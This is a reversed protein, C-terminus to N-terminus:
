VGSCHCVRESLQYHGAATVKLTREIVGIIGGPPTKELWGILSHVSGFKGATVRERERRGNM